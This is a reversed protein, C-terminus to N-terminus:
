SCVDTGICWTGHEWWLLRYSKYQWFLCWWEWGQHPHRELGHPGCGWAHVSEFWLKNFRETFCVGLELSMNVDLLYLYWFFVSLRLSERIQSCRGCQEEQIRLSYMVYWESVRHGPSQGGQRNRGEKMRRERVRQGKCVLWGCLLEPYLLVYFGSTWVLEVLRHRRTVGSISTRQKKHGQDLSAYLIEQTRMFLEGSSSLAGWDAVTGSLSNSHRYVSWEAIYFYWFGFCYWNGMFAIVQHWVTLRAGWSVHFSPEALGPGTEWLVVSVWPDCYLRYALSLLTRSPQWLFDRGVPEYWVSWPLGGTSARSRM